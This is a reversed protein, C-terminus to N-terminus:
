AYHGMLRAPRGEPFTVRCTGTAQQVSIGVVGSGLPRARLGPDDACYSLVRGRLEENM